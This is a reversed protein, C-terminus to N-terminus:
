IIPPDKGAAPVPLTFELGLPAATARVRAASRLPRSLQICQRVSKLTEWPITANVRQTWGAPRNVPWLSM